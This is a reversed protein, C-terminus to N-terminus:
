EYWAVWLDILGDIVRIFSGNRLMEDAKGVSGSM